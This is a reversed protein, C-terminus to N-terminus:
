QAFAHVPAINGLRAIALVHKMGISVWEHPQIVQSHTQSPIPEFVLMLWRTQLMMTSLHVCDYALQTQIARPLVVHATRDVEYRAIGGM